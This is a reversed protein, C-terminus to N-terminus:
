EHARMGHVIVLGIIWILSTVAAAIAVVVADRRTTRYRTGDSVLAVNVCDKSAPEPIPPPATPPAASPVASAMLRDVQAQTVASHSLMYRIFDRLNNREDPRAARWDRYIAELEKAPLLSHKVVQSCFKQLNPAM